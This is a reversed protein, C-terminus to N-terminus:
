RVRTQFTLKGKEGGDLDESLVFRVIGSGEGNPTVQLEGPLTSEGSGEVYELRPTLNDLIVIESLPKQGRNEVTITFTVLDGAAAFAKDAFKRVCLVGPKRKDEVGVIVQPRTTNTAVTASDGVFFTVPNDTRTWVAAADERETLEAASLGTRENARRNTLVKLTETYRVNQQRRLVDSLASWPREATLGSVKSRARAADLRTEQRMTGTPVDSVGVASGATRAVDAPGQYRIDAVIGFTTTVEAFRPAYICVRNTPRVTLEGDSGRFRVVADETDLGGLGGLEDTVGTPRLRDGGDCLYEDKPRVEPPCYPGPLRADIVAGGVPPLCGHRVGGPPCHVPAGPPCIQPLGHLLPPCGDTPPCIEAPPCGDLAARGEVPCGVVGTSGIQTASVQTVADTVPPLPPLNVDAPAAPFVPGGTGFFAREPRRLDPTRGGVRVIAIVRGRADGAALPDANPPLPTRRLPGDFASVPAIEPNELYIAKTILAGAAARRAEDDTISVPLPFASALGEPPHLRDILEISPFLATGEPLGPVDTIRMRYTKGVCLRVLSGGADGEPAAPDGGVPIPPAFPTGYVEVTGGGAATVNVTMFGRRAPDLLVARAGVAGAPTDALPPLPIGAGRRLTGSQAHASPLLGDPSFPTGAVSVAAALATLVAAHPRPM